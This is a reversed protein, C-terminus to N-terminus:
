KISVSLVMSTPKTCSNVVTLDNDGDETELTTTSGEDEFQICGGPSTIRGSLKQGAKARLVFTAAEKVTGVATASTAGPRFNIRTTSGDLTKGTPITINAAQDAAAIADNAAKQIQKIADDITANTNATIANVNIEPINAPRQINTNVTAIQRRGYSWMLAGAVIGIAGLVFLSGLVIAVVKLGGGKKQALPMTGVGPTYVATPQAAGGFVKTAFEPGDLKKGCSTCYTMNDPVENGCSYCHLM